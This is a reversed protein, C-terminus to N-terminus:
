GVGAHRLTGTRCGRIARRWKGRADDPSQAALHIVRTLMTEVDPLIFQVTATGATVSTNAILVYTEALAPGGVEADAFAWFPGTVTSAASLHGEHWDGDPWWMAREVVIGHGDLSEVLASVPTNALRPDELDVAIPVAAKARSTTSKRSTRAM